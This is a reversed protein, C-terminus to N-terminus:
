KRREPPLSRPSTRRLRGTSRMSTSPADPLSPVLQYDINSYFAGVRAAGENTVTIRASRRFPMAFYCNLAKVSSCNLFASQYVFYQGLNLGFFDGVPAEVSPKANGDWYVRLM